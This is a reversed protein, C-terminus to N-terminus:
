RMAVQNRCVWPITGEQEFLKRAYALNHWLDTVDVTPHFGTNIQAVGSDRTDVRGRLIEGNPLYHTFNSECGIIAVM